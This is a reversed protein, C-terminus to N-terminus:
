VYYHSIESGWLGQLHPFIFWMWNTMKRGEVLEKEVRELIPDQANIFKQLM